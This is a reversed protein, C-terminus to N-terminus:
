AVRVETEHDPELLVGDRFVAREAVLQMVAPGGNLTPWNRGLRQVIEIKVPCAMEQPDFNQACRLDQAVFDEVCQSLLDSDVEPPPVVVVTRM